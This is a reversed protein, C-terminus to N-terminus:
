SPSRMSQSFTASSRRGRHGPHRSCTCIAAPWFRRSPSTSPPALAEAEIHDRNLSLRASLSAATHVVGKPDGTTGSTFLILAPDDNKPFAIAPPEAAPPPERGAELVRWALGDTPPAATDSSVLVAAPQVFDAVNALEGRTLTPNLCVAAAGLSWIAFLDGFFEPTGGHAIIVRQGPAVGAAALVARRRSIEDRLDGASWTLGRHVDTVAGLTEISLSTMAAM